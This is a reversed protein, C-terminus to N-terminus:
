GLDFEGLPLIALKAPSVLICLSHKKKKFFVTVKKSTSKVIFAVLLFCGWVCAIEM